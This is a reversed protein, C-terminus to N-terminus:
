SPTDDWEPLIEWRMGLTGPMMELAVAARVSTFINAGKSNNSGSERFITHFRTLFICSVYYVHM